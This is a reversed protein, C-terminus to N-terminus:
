EDDDGDDPQCQAGPLAYGEECDGHDPEDNEAEDGCECDCCKEDDECDYITDVCVTVAKICAGTNILIGGIRTPSAVINGSASMAAMITDLTNNKTLEAQDHSVCEITDDLAVPSPNYRYPYLDVLMNVYVGYKM